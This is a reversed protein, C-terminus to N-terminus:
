TLDAIVGLASEAKVKLGWEALLLKKEADGTKALDVTQFPRLYAISVFEPDLLFADRNRQYRNPVISVNGFDSVYVDAAGIITSAKAGGVDFRTEAIGTFASAVQKQTGGLSLLKPVGGSAWVTAIASKLIAETFARTTGDTRVDNPFTTYVPTAAAGTGMNVNTKLFAMLTGTKRATSSNGAVAAINSLCTFEMDRKIEASLKALQYAMEKKRGAKKVADSTGSVLVNKSSIQCYNGIRTTAVAATATSAYDNGEVVANAAASALADQQWEFFTSEAKEKGASSMFPTEEPSIQYIIDSLNERIGKQDFTLYTNTVIAM